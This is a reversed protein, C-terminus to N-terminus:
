SKVAELLRMYKKLYFHEKFDVFGQEKLISKWDREVFDFAYKCEVTKFVARHFAPMSDLEFESYDLIFFSGGIKLHNLANEIIVHRVEHPFGHIVFCIFVKDFKRELQFPLDIRHNLFLVRGDDHFRKQFQLAMDESIDMGQIGGGTKLYELMLQDNFGTGCGMDLIQDEAQIHMAKIAKKISRHFHGLSAIALIRDYHKSVFPSLEIGSEPYIKDKM